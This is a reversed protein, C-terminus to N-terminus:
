QKIAIGSFYKEYAEKLLTGISIDESTVNTPNNTILESLGEVSDQNDEIFNAILSPNDKMFSTLDDFPNLKSIIENKFKDILEGYKQRIMEGIPETIKHELDRTKEVLINQKVDELVKLFKSNDTDKGLINMTKNFVKTDTLDLIGLTALLLYWHRVAFKGAYLIPTAATQGISRLVEMAKFVKEKNTKAQKLEEITSQIRKVSLGIGKPLTTLSSGLITKEKIFENKYREDLDKRHETLVEKLKVELSLREESSLEKKLENKIEQILRGRLATKTELEHNKHLENELEEIM